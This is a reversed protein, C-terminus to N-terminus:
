YFDEIAEILWKSQILAVLFWLLLVYYNICVRILTGYLRDICQAMDNRVRNIITSRSANGDNTESLIGGVRDIIM